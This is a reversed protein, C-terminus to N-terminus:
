DQALQNPTLHIHKDLELYPVSFRYSKTNKKICDLLDLHFKLGKKCYVHAVKKFYVITNM